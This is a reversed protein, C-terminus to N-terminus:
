SAIPNVQPAIHSPMQTGVDVLSDVVAMSPVSIGNVKVLVPVSGNVEATFGAAVSTPPQAAAHSAARRPEEDEGAPLQVISVGETVAEVNGTTQSDQSLQPPVSLQPVPCDPKQQQLEPMEKSAEATDQLTSKHSAAVAAAGSAEQKASSAASAAKDVPPLFAAIRPSSSDGVEGKHLTKSLLTAKSLETPAASPLITLTPAPAANAQIAAVAAHEKKLAANEECLTQRRQGKAMEAKHSKEVYATFEERASNFIGQGIGQAARLEDTPCALKNLHSLLSAVSEPLTQHLMSVALVCSPSPSNGSLAVFLCASADAMQM